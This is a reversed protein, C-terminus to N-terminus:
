GVVFVVGWGVGGGFDVEAVGADACGAEDGEGEEEVVAHDGYHVDRAPEAGGPM